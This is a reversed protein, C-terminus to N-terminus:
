NKSNDTDDDSLGSVLRAKTIIKLLAKSSLKKNVFDKIEDNTMGENTEENKIPINHRLATFALFETALSIDQKEAIKMFEMLEPVTLSNIIMDQGMINITESKAELKNIDFGM